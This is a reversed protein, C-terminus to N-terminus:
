YENVCSVHYQYQKVSCQCRKILDGVQVPVDEHTFPFLRETIRSQVDSSNPVVKTSAAGASLM